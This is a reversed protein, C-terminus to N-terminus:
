TKKPGIVLLPWLNLIEVLSKFLLYSGFLFFFSFSHWKYMIFDINENWAVCKNIIPLFFFLRVKFFIDFTGVNIEFRYSVSKFLPVLIEM